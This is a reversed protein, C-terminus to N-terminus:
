TTKVEDSMSTTGTSIREIHQSRSPATAMAKERVIASTPPVFPYRAEAARRVMPVANRKGERNLQVMRASLERRARRIRLPAERALRLVSLCARRLTWIAATVISAQETPITPVPTSPVTLCSVVFLMM